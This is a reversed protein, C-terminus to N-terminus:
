CVTIVFEKSDKASRIFSVVSHRNDSCDIWQFGEQAFDQTHLASESRYLKNLDSTFQKLKQHAEYQLLHWELDGWVNWESW